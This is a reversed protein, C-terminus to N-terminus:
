ANKRVHWSVTMGAVVQGDGDTIEVAVPFEVKGDSDLRGLLGDVDEDLTATATIVGEALKRYDIEASRALPRVSGLHDAFAGMFAAGSAAEGAAFLGAAHHSGVHNRLKDEDPLRVVGRGEAVEAIELGLHTNFPIAGQLAERMAEFDPM